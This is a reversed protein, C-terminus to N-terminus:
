GTPALSGSKRAKMQRNLQNLLTLVGVISGAMRFGVALTMLLTFAGALSLMTLNEPALGASRAPETAVLDRVRSNLRVLMERPPRIPTLVAQLAGEIKRLDHDTDHTKM